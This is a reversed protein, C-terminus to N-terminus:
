ELAKKIDFDYKGALIDKEAEDLAKELKRRLTGVYQQGNDWHAYLRIGAEMGAYFVRRQELRTEM